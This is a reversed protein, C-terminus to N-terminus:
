KQNSSSDIYSKYWLNPSSKVIYDDGEVDLAMETMRKSDTQVLHPEFHGVSGIWFTFLAFSLAFTCVFTLFLRPNSAGM